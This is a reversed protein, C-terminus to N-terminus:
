LFNYLIEFCNLKKLAIDVIVLLALVIILKVIVATYHISFNLKTSPILYIVPFLPQM